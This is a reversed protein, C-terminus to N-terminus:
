HALGAVRAGPSLSRSRHSSRPERQRAARSRPAALAEELEAVKAAPVAEGRRLCPLFGWEDDDMAVHSSLIEAASRENMLQVMPRLVRTFGTAQPM